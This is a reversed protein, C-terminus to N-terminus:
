RLILALVEYTQEYFKAPIDIEICANIIDNNNLKNTSLHTNCYM